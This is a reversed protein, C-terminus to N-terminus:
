RGVWLRRVFHFPRTMGSPVLHNGRISIQRWVVAFGISACTRSGPTRGTYTSTYTGYEHPGLPSVPSWSSDADRPARAFACLPLRWMLALKTASSVQPSPPFSAVIMPARQDSYGDRGPAASTPLEPCEASAVRASCAPFSAAPCGLSVCVVEHPGAWQDCKM